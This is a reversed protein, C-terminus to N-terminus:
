TLYPDARLVNEGRTLKRITAFVYIDESRLCLGFDDGGMEAFRRRRCDSERWSAENFFCRM